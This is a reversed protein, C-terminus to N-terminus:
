KEVTKGLMRLLTGDKDIVHHKVVGIIHLALCVIIIWGVYYHVASAQDALAQNSAIVGYPNAPDPTKAVIDLGFIGFGRGNFSSEIMGSIPMLITSILLVWHVAKALVIQQKSNTGLMEPFGNKLRWIVRAIIVLFLIVGLSKHISYLSYVEYQEMYEGLGILGIIGLAVVWHLVVTTRSFKEISDRMKLGM